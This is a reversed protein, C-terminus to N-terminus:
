SFDLRYDRRPAPLRDWPPIDLVMIGDGWDLGVVEFCTCGHKEPEVGIIRDGRLSLWVRRGKLAYLEAWLEKESALCTALDEKPCGIGVTEHWEVVLRHRDTSEGIEFVSELTVTKIM